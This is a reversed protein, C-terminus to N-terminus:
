KLKQIQVSKHLEEDAGTIQLFYQGAAYDRMPVAYELTNNLNKNMLTKGMNDTLVINFETNLPASQKGIFTLEVNIFDTTPNPYVVIDYGLEKHEEISIIEYHEQHFGQTITANSGSVTESVPEGVTWSLSVNANSTDGGTASIVEPTISQALVEGWGGGLFLLPLALALAKWAGGRRRPDFGSHRAFARGERATASAKTRLRGFPLSLWCVLGVFASVLYKRYNNASCLWVSFNMHLMSIAKEM